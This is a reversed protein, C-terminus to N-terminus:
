VLIVHIDPTVQQLFGKVHNALIQNAEESTPLSIPIEVCNVDTWPGAVQATILYKIGPQQLLVKEVTTPDWVDDVVILMMQNGLLASLQNHMGAEFQLNFSMGDAASLPGPGSM